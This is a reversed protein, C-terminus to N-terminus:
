GAREGRLTDVMLAMAGVTIASDAVNFAPWHWQGYYVDIFDIVYGYEVRDWLNGLAGGLILSLACAMGSRGRPVSRLWMVIWVSVALALAIFFWRQWGSAHGLLSFAAGANHVLTLNLSPLLAIPQHLILSDSAIEKTVQDTIVVAASLWLWRWGIGGTAIAPAQDATEPLEPNKM